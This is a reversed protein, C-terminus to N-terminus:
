HISTGHVEFAATDEEVPGDILAPADTATTTACAGSAQARASRWMHRRDQSGSWRFVFRGALGNVTDISQARPEFAAFKAGCALGRLVPGWSRWTQRVTARCHARIAGPPLVSAPGLLIEVPLGVM